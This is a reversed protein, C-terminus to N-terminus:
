APAPHPSAAGPTQPPSVWEIRARAEVPKEGPHMVIETDRYETPNDPDNM